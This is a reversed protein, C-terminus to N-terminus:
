ETGMYEIDYGEKLKVYAKKWDSRRGNITGFRKSKGKVISTCVSEVKVNFMLEVARKIEPKTANKVVQFVFQRNKDAILSAKETIHPALLLNMYRLEQPNM